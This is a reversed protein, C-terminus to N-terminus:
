CGYISEGRPATVDTETDEEADVELLVQPEFMLPFGVGVKSGFIQMLDHMQWKCYGDADVKPRVYREKPWSRMNSALELWQDYHHQRGHDTLRVKVYQNLNFPMWKKESM